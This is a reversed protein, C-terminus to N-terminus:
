VVIGRADAVETTDAVGVTEAVGTTETVGVTDVVGTTDVLMVTLMEVLVEMMEMVVVWSHGVRGRMVWHQLLLLSLGFLLLFLLLPGIALCPCLLSLQPLFFSGCM